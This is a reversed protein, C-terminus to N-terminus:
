FIIITEERGMGSGETRPVAWTVAARVLASGGRGVVAAVTKLPRQPGEDSRAMGRGSAWRLAEILIKDAGSRWCASADDSDSWLV